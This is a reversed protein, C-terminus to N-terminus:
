KQYKHIYMRSGQEDSGQVMCYFQWGYREYFSDHDTVLYLTDIGKNHMDECVFDLMKGAIGQGRKDQETYVACINPALDPRNHFDNEIVGIGAIIRDEEFMMYWQPVPKDGNIAERMSEEYASAPVKWKSSFWQVAKDKLEPHETVTVINNKKKKM